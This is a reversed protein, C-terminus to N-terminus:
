KQIQLNLNQFVLLNITIILVKIANGVTLTRVLKFNSISKAMMLKNNVKLM